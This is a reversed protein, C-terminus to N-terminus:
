ERVFPNLARSNDQKVERRNSGEDRDTVQGASNIKHPQCVVSGKLHLHEM